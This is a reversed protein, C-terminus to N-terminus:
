RQGRGKKSFVREDNGDPTGCANDNLIDLVLSAVIRGLTNRKQPGGIM